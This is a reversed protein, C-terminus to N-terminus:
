TNSNRILDLQTEYMDEISTKWGHPLRPLYSLKITKWNERLESESSAGEILGKVELDLSQKKAESSSLRQIIRGERRAESKEYLVLGFRDGFTRLCRKAADSVCEKVALEHAEGPNRGFGDGYGTDQRTVPDEGPVHITIEVIAIYHVRFQGKKTPNEYEAVCRVDLVRQSWNGRGFIQNAEQIAHHSEIYDLKKGGSGERKAVFDANLPAELDDIIDETLM